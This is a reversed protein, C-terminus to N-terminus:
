REYKYYMIIGYIIHMVGFGVAWFILGYGIWLAALLGLAIEILGLHRVDNFTYKSANVLALGYFMLTAPAILGIDGHYVLILCFIGGASLPIFLNILLRKAANDWIKLGKKRTKRVSLLIAVAVSLILVVLADTLFFLYFGINRTGEATTAYSYYNPQIINLHLYLYAIFAGVLAFAGAFVGALGNLSIFRTSREMLSRIETLTELHESENKM